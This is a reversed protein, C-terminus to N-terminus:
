PKISNLLYEVAADTDTQLKKLIIILMLPGGREMVDFQQYQELCKEWLRETCHNMLFDYSIQMNEQFWKPKAWTNYWHNSAAVDELTLTPYATFLNSTTSYIERPRYSKPKVISYVDVMDYKGFHDEVKNL